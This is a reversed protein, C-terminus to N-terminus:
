FYIILSGIIILSISYLLIMNIDIFFGQKRRYQIPLFDIWTSPRVMVFKLLKLTKFFDITLDNKLDEVSFIKNTHKKEHDLVHEYIDKFKLLDKHIEIHNGFNNALGYSVYKIKMM